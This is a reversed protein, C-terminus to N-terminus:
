SYTRSHLVSYSSFLLVVTIANTYSSCQWWWWEKLWSVAVVKVSWNMLSEGSCTSVDNKAFPYMSNFYGMWCAQNSCDYCIFVISFTKKHRGCWIGLVEVSLGSDACENPCHLHIDQSTNHWWHSAAANIVCPSTQAVGYSFKHKGLFGTFLWSCDELILKRWRLFSYICPSWSRVTIVYLVFGLRTTSGTNTYFFFRTAKISVHFLWGLGAETGEVRSCAQDAFYTPIGFVLM